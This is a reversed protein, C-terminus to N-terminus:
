SDVRRQSLQLSNFRKRVYFRGGIVWFSAHLWPFLIANAEGGHMGFGHGSWGRLRIPFNLIVALSTILLSAIFCLLWSDFVLRKPAAWFENPLRWVLGVLLVYGLVISIWYAIYIPYPSREFPLLSTAFLYLFILPIHVLGYLLVGAAEFVFRFTFKSYKQMLFIVVSNLRTAAAWFPM